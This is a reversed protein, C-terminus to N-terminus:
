VDNYSVEYTGIAQYVAYDSLVPTVKVEEQVRSTHSTM